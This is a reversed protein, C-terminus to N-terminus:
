LQGKAHLVRQIERAAALPGGPADRAIASARELRDQGANRNVSLWQQWCVALLERPPINRRLLTLLGSHSTRGSFGSAVPGPRPPPFASAARWIWLAACVALGIAFGGLGFQRAFSVVSSSEAIGFHHEDFVIHRNGGLARTVLDLRDSAVTAMNTFDDSGALLVVIGKDFAREIALVKPGIRELETWAAPNEFSVKQVHRRDNDIALRLGWAEALTDPEAEVQGDLAAVVRNGRGAIERLTKAKAALEAPPLNLLVVTAGTEDFLELARYNRTAKVGPLHSLSEFLLKSGAPDSRLSSLEPYVDGGAFTLGFLYVVGWLFGAAILFAAAHAPSKM